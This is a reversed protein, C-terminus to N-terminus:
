YVLPQEAARATTGISNVIQLYRSDLSGDPQVKPLLATGETIENWATIVTYSDKPPVHQTVFNRQERLMREFTEPTNGTVIPTFPYVGTVEELTPGNIGRPSGDWGLVVPPVFPKSSATTIEHWEAIRQELLSSYDQIPEADPEFNPLFAYGTMADVNQEFHARASPAKLVGVVYPEIKYRRQSYEKLYELMDPLTLSGEVNKAESAYISLYPQDDYGMRIYNDRNWYQTACADVITEVTGKTRDYDRRQEKFAMGPSIPLTVRPSGLAAMLAFNISNANEAGLFGENIVSKMEHVSKGSKQGLYSDFIFGSIGHKTALEIQPAMAEPDADDWNRTAVDGLSYTVPQDHGEYLPQADQCLQTEDVLEYGHTRAREQREPCQTSVPYFYSYIPIESSKPM